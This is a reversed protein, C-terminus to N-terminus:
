CASVLSLKFDVVAVGASIVLCLCLVDFDVPGVPTSKVEVATDGNWGLVVKDYDDEARRGADSGSLL